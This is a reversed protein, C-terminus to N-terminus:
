VGIISSTLAEGQGSEPLRPDVSEVLYKLGCLACGLYVQSDEMFYHNEQPNDIAFAASRSTFQEHSRATTPAEHDLGGLSTFPAAEGKVTIQRTEMTAEYPNDTDDQAAAHYVEPFAANISSAEAKVTKAEKEAWGAVPKHSHGVFPQIGDTVHDEVAHPADTIRVPGASASTKRSLQRGDNDGTDTSRGTGAPAEVTKQDSERLVIPTVLSREDSGTKVRVTMMGLPSAPSSSSLQLAAATSCSTLCGGIGGADVGSEQREVVPDIVPAAPPSMETNTSVHEIDGSIAGLEGQDRCVSTSDFIGPHNNTQCNRRGLVSKERWTLQLLSVAAAIMKDQSIRAAIKRRRRWCQTAAQITAAAKSM